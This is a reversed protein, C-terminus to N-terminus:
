RLKQELERGPAFNPDLVLTKGLYQKAKAQDGLEYELVALTFYGDRYDNYKRVIGEWYAVQKELSAREMEAYRKQQYLSFADKVSFLLAVSLAVLPVILWYKAYPRWVPRIEWKPLKKLREPIIRYISPFKPFLLLHQKKM